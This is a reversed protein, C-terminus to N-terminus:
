MKKAFVKGFNFCITTEDPSLDWDDIESWADFIMEELAYNFHSGGLEVSKNRYKALIKKLKDFNLIQNVLPDSYLPADEVFKISSRDMKQALAVQYVLCGVLFAFKKSASSNIALNNKLFDSLVTNNSGMTTSGRKQNLEILGSYELLQLCQHAVIVAKIFIIFNKEVLAKNQQSIIYQALLRTIINRKVPRQSLISNALYIFHTSEETSSSCACMERLIKLNFYFKTTGNHFVNYFDKNELYTKLKALRYLWSPFISQSEGIINWQSKKKRIYFMKFFIYDKPFSRLIEDIIEEEDSVLHNLTNYSLSNKVAKKSWNEAIKLLKKLLVPNDTYPILLYQSNMNNFQFHSFVYNAGATLKLICEKCIPYVKSGSTVSCHNPIRGVQDMTFSGIVTNNGYVKIGEHHCMYCTQNEAVVAKKKYIGFKQDIIFDIHNTVVDHKHFEQPTMGTLTINFTYYKKEFDFGKTKERYDQVLENDNKIDEFVKKLNVIYEPMTVQQAELYKTFNQFYSRIRELFKKQTVRGTPFVYPNTGGDLEIHIVEKIDNIEIGQYLGKSNFIFNVNQGKDRGIPTLALLCELEDWNNEIILVEGIKVLEQFM